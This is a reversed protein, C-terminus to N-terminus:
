RKLITGALKLAAPVGDKKAVTKVRTRNTGTLKSLVGLYEGQRKMAAIRQPTNTIKRKV